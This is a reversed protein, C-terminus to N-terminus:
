QEFGIGLERPRLATYAPAALDQTIVIEPRTARLAHEVDRLRAFPSPETREGRRVLPRITVRAREYLGAWEAAPPADPTEGVYLVDVEHGLRGLAVALFSTATGLGGARPYGLLEDTVLTIRKSAAM